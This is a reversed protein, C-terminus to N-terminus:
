TGIIATCLDWECLCTACWGSARREADCWSKLPLHTQPCDDLSVKGLKDSVQVQLPCDSLARDLDTDKGDEQAEHSGTLRQQQQAQPFANLM